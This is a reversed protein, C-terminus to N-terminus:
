DSGTTGPLFNQFLAKYESMDVPAAGFHPGFVFVSTGLFAARSSVQIGEPLAVAAWSDTRPTYQLQRGREPDFVYVVDLVGVAAPTAVAQMLPTLSEWHEGSDATPDYRENVRLAGGEGEGGVV